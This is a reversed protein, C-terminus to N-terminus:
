TLKKVIEHVQGYTKWQYEGFKGNELRIRTGFFPNNANRAVSIAFSEYLTTVEPHYTRILESAEICLPHRRPTGSTPDNSNAEPCEVTFKGDSMIAVKKSHLRRKYSSSYGDSSAPSKLSSRSSSFSATGQPLPSTLQNPNTSNPNESM